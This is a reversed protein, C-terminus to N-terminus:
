EVIQELYEKARRLKGGVVRRAWLDLQNLKEQREKCKCPAGLWGEVREETVGVAALALKLTDGLM